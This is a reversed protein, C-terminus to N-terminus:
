KLTHEVCVKFVVIEIMFSKRLWREAFVIFNRSKAGFHPQRQRFIEFDPITRLTQDTVSLVVDRTQNVGHHLKSITV